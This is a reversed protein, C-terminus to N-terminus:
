FQPQEINLYSDYQEMRPTRSDLPGLGPGPGDRPGVFDWGILHKAAGTQRNGAPHKVALQRRQIGHQVRGAGPAHDHEAIPDALTFSLTGGDLFTTAPTDGHHEDLYRIVHIGIGEDSLLNNGIGLILTTRM